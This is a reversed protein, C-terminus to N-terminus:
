QTREGSAIMILRMVTKDVIVKSDLQTSKLAIDADRLVSLARRLDFISMRRANQSAYKLKFANKGYGFDAGISEANKGESEALKARYMDVYASGLAGIIAIPEVCQAALDALMAYVRDADVAVVANVLKYAKESPTKVALSDIVDNTIIGGNGVFDCLKDVESLLNTMDSGCIRILYKAGTTQLNVSRSAARKCLTRALDSEDRTNLEAVAGVKRVADFVKRAKASKSPSIDVQEYRLILVCTDPPDSLLALLKEIEKDDTSAFNYDCVAVCSYDSMVPLTEAANVIDDVKLAGDFRHLNLDPLDTVAKQIIADAYYRKLYNENGYLLYVPMFESKKIHESLMKETLDPM